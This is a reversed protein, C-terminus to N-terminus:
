PTPTPLAFQLLSFFRFTRCAWNVFIKQAGRLYNISNILQTKSKKVFKRWKLFNKNQMSGDVLEATQTEFHFTNKAKQKFFQQLGESLNASCHNLIRFFHKQHHILHLTKNSSFDNTKNKSLLNNDLLNISLQVM